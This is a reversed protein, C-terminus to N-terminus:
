NFNITFGPLDSAVNFDFSYGNTILGLNVLEAQFSSGGSTIYLTAGNEAKYTNFTTGNVSSNPGTVGSVTVLTTTTDPLIGTGSSFLTSSRLVGLYTGFPYNGYSYIYELFNSFSYRPGEPIVKITSPGSFSGNGSITNGLSM